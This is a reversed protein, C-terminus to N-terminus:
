KENKKIARQFGKEADSLTSYSWGYTGWQESYPFSEREPYFVGRPLTEAKRVQIIIVEYTPFTHGKKTKSYLAVKGERKIQTFNWNWKTFSKALEKM